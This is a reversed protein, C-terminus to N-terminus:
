AHDVQQNETHECNPLRGRGCSFPATNVRSGFFTAGSSGPSKGILKICEKVFSMELTRARRSAGCMSLRTELARLAKMLYLHM